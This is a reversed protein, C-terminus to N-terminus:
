LPNKKIKSFQRPYKNNTIEKKKLKIITHTLSENNLMLNYEVTDLYKVGLENLAKNVEALEEKTKDAKMYLCIGNVKVFPVTIEMLINLRAVARSVVVDYTERFNLTKSTEEARGHVAEVNKLNLKNIVEQLFLIRKNLADFLTIKVKGEFYIAIIIGPLGAGTGVDIVKQKEEIHKIIQLSDIIHKAIIEEDDVIATLNIKENWDVLMEKYLYLKELQENNLVIGTNGATEATKTIFQEKTLKVHFLM